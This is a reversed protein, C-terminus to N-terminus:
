KKAGAKEGPLIISQYGNKMEVGEEPACTADLVKPFKETARTLLRTVEWPRTFAVPDTLTMKSELTNKDIQRIREVVHLKASYPPDTQDYYAPYMGVTDVVLTDGEWHGISHGNWRPVVEGPEFGENTPHQRGDTYIHRVASGADFYMIVVEPTIFIEPGSPAGGMVRPFGYPECIAARDISRGAVTNKVIDDYKKQWEANYPIKNLKSGPMPGAIGAGDGEEGKGAPDPAEYFNLPDFMIEAPRRKGASTPRWRGNWDPLKRMAEIYADGFKPATFAGGKAADAAAPPKRDCGSLAVVAAAALIMGLYALKM